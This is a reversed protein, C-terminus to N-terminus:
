YNLWIQKEARSIGYHVWAPTTEAESSRGEWQPASMSSLQGPCSTVAPARELSPLAVWLSPMPFLVVPGEARDLSGLSSLCLVLNLPLSFPLLCGMKTFM